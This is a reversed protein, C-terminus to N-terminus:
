FVNRINGFVILILLEFGWVLASSLLGFARNYLWQLQPFFSAWWGSSEVSASHRVENSSIEGVHASSRISRTQGTPVFDVTVRYQLTVYEGAAIAPITWTVQHMGIVGGTSVSGPVLTTYIPVHSTVVVNNRAQTGTNRVQITYHIASNATVNANHAPNSTMNLELAAPASASTGLAFGALLVAATLMIALIKKM